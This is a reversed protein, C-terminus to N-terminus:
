QRGCYGPIGAACGKPSLDRSQDAKTESPFPTNTTKFSLSLPHVSVGAFNLFKVSIVSPHEEMVMYAVTVDKEGKINSAMAIGVGHQLQSGIPVSIPLVRVDEPFQSGFENGYWYLYVRELDVGRTLWAGLEQFAPVLWDGPRLRGSVVQAAEQRIPHM